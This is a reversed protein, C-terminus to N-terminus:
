CRSSELVAIDSTRIVRLVQLGAQQVTRGSVVIDVILDAVGSVLCTELTGQIALADLRLGDSCLATLFQETIRRYRTCLVIRLARGERLIAPSEGILCLAPAGYIAAPDSWAIKRRALGADIVNGEALWEDLLDDGTFALVRRGM